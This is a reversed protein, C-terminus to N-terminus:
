RTPKWDAARRLGDARQEPTFPPRVEGLMVASLVHGREAALHLWMYAEARSAEAEPGDLLFIAMLHQSEADGRNAGELLWQRAEPRNKKQFLSLAGLDRMAALQGQGAAKRLWGEGDALNEVPPRANILSAGLLYQAAPMGQEALPRLERVATAFDGRSYAIAGEKFGSHAALAYGALVALLALRGLSRM